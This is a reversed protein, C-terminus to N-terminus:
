LAGLAVRVALPLAALQTPVRFAAIALLALVVLGVPAWHTVPFGAESGALVVCLALAVLALLTTPAARLAGTLRAAM